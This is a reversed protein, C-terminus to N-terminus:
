RTRFEKPSIRFWTRSQSSVAVLGQYERAHSTSGDQSLVPPLTGIVIPTGPALLVPSNRWRDVVREVSLTATFTNLLKM